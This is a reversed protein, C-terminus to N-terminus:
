HWAGFIFWASINPWASIYVLGLVLLIGPVLIFWASIYLWGLSYVVTLIGPWASIYLVWGSIYQWGKVLLSVSDM